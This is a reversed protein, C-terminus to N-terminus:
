ITRAVASQNLPNHLPARGRRDSKVLDLLLFPKYISECLAIAPQQLTTACQGLASLLNALNAWQAQCTLAILIEM